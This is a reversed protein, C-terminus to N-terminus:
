TFFFFCIFRLEEDFFIAWFELMANKTKTTTCSLGALKTTREKEPFVIKEIFKSKFMRTHTHARVDWTIVICKKFSIYFRGSRTIAFYSNTKIKYTRHTNNKEPKTNRKRIACSLFVCRFYKWVYACCCFFLWNLLKIFQKEEKKTEEKKM